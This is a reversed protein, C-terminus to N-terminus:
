GLPGVSQVNGAKPLYRGVDRLRRLKGPRDRALAEWGLWITFAGFLMTMVVSGIVFDPKYWLTWALVIGGVLVGGTLVFGLIADRLTTGHELAGLGRAAHVAHAFRRMVQGYAADNPQVARLLVPQTPPTETWGEGQEFWGDLFLRAMYYTGYKTGGFGLRLTRVSSAPIALLSGGAGRVELLEGFCYVEPRDGLVGLAALLPDPRAYFGTAEEPERPGTM